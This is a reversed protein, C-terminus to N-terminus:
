HAVYGGSLLWRVRGAVNGSTFTIDRTPPPATGNPVGALTTDERLKIYTPDLFFGMRGKQAELHIEGAAKMDSMIDSFTM